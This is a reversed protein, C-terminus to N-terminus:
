QQDEWLITKWTPLYSRAFYYTWRAKRLKPFPMLLSNCFQFSTTAKFASIYKRIHVTRLFIHVSSHWEGGGMEKLKRRREV